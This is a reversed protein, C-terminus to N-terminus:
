FTLSEPFQDKKGKSYISRLSCSGKYPTGEGFQEEMKTMEKAELIENKGQM